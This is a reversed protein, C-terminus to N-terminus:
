VDEGNTLVYAFSLHISFEVYGDSAGTLLEEKHAVSVQEGAIRKICIQYLPTLLRLASIRLVGHCSMAVIM